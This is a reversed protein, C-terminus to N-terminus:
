LAARGAATLQREYGFGGPVHEILGAATLANIVNGHPYGGAALTALGKRQAPTLKKTNAASSM